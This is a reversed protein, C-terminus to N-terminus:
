ARKKITPRLYRWAFWKAVFVPSGSGSRGRREQTQDGAKDLHADLEAGLASELVTRIIGALLGGPGVLSVGDAKAREVM